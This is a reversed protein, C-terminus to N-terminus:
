RRQRDERVRVNSAHALRGRERREEIPPRGLDVAVLREEEGHAAPAAAAELMPGHGLFGGREEDGLAGVRAELHAGAVGAMWQFDIRLREILRSRERLLLEGRAHDDRDVLADDKAQVAHVKRDRTRAIEAQEAGAVLDLLDPSLDQAGSGM